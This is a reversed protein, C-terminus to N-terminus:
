SQSFGIGDFAGEAFDIPESRQDLLLRPDEVGSSHNTSWYRGSALPGGDPDATISLIKMLRERSPAEGRLLGGDEVEESGDNKVSVLVNSRHIDMRRGEDRLQWGVPLMGMSERTGQVDLGDVHIRGVYEGSRSAKFREDLLRILRSVEVRNRATIVASRDPRDMTGHPAEMSYTGRVEYLPLSPHTKVPMRYLTVRSRVRELTRSDLVDQLVPERYSPVSAFRRFTLSRSQNGYLIHELRKMTVLHKLEPELRRLWRIVPALAKSKEFIFVQHFKEVRGLGSQELEALEETVFAGRFVGTPYLAKSRDFASSWRMVPLLPTVPGVEVRVTADAIGIQRMLQHPNWKKDPAEVLVPSGSPVEHLMAEGYARSRDLRLYPEISTQVHLVPGGVHARRALKAVEEQLPPPFVEGPEYPRGYKDYLGRLFGIATSRFGIQEENLRDCLSRLQEQLFGTTEDTDLTEEEDGVQWRGGGKGSKVEEIEIAWSDIKRCHVFGDIGHPGICVSFGGMGRRDSVSGDVVQYGHVTADELLKELAEADICYLHCSRLVNWPIVDYRDGGISFSTKKRGVVYLQERQISHKRDHM